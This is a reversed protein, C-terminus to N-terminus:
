SELDYEAYCIYTLLFITYTKIPFLFVKLARTVEPLSYKKIYETQADSDPDPGLLWSHLRRSLSLDRRLVVSLASTMLLLRSESRMERYFAYYFLTM